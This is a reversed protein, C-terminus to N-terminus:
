PPTPTRMDVLTHIAEAKEGFNLAMVASPADVGYAAFPNARTHGDAVLRKAVREVAEDQKRDLQEVVARRQRLTALAAKVTGHTGLYAYHAAAFADFRKRIVTVDVTEGAAVIAAGYRVRGAAYLGTRLTGM